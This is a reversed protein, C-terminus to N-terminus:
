KMQGPPMSGGHWGRKEGKAWGPPNKFYPSGIGYFQQPLERLEEWPGNFARGRYWRNDRWDYYRGQHRFMDHDWDPAYEIGPANPVPAWKPPPPQAMARGPVALSGALLIVLGVTVLLVTVNKMTKRRFTFEGAGPPLAEYHSSLFIPHCRYLAM